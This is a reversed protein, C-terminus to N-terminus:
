ILGVSFIVPTPVHIGGLVCPCVCMGSHVFTRSVAVLTVAVRPGM